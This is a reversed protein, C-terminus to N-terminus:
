QRGYQEGVNVYESDALIRTFLEPLPAEFQTGSLGSLTGKLEPFRICWAHLLQHKLGYTKRYYDNVEKKGYKTDGIVPYGLYALHSRIQHTRGTILQVKLLTEKGNSALPEYATEIREGGKFPNQEVRVKNCKEDKQLYAKVEKPTKLVGNVITLYYKELNHSQILVSLQQAAPLTKAALILGSTNRDLRNCIGPRYRLFDLASMQGSSILYGLLYENASIDEKKAKQSLMGCPKNIALIENDEYIVRFDESVPYKEQTSEGQLKSITEESFFLRIVDGEQLLENGKTKKGNLTINKKRMMRYIFGTGTNKLYRLLYKDLRQRAERDTITLERM